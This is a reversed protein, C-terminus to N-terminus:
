AAGGYSVRLAASNTIKDHMTIYRQTTEISKHGLFDKIAVIPEGCEHLRTAVTARAAHPSVKRIGAEECLEQMLLYISSDKLAQKTPYHERRRQIIFDKAQLEHGTLELYAKKYVEVAIKVEPILPLYRIKGRKGRIKLCELGHRETIHRFRLAVLENRRLGLHFLLTLMITSVAGRLTKSDVADFLDRVQKATLAVIPTEVQARPLRVETMEFPSIRLLGREVYIKWLLRLPAIRSRVTTSSFGMGASLYLTYEVAMDVTVNTPDTVNPHREQLWDFFVKFGRAYSRKTNENTVSYIANDTLPLKTTIEYM